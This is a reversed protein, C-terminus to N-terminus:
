LSNLWSSSARASAASIRLILGLNETPPQLCLSGKLSGATNSRSRAARRLAPSFHAAHQQATNGGAHPEHSRSFNHHLGKRLRDFPSGKLGRGATPDGDHRALSDASLTVNKTPTRAHSANASRDRCLRPLLGDHKADTYLRSLTLSYTGVEDVMGPSRLSDGLTVGQGERRTHRYGAM